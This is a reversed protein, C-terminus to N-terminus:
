ATYTGGAEKVARKFIEKVSDGAKIKVQVPEIYFGQGITMREITFTVTGLDTTTTTEAAYVKDTTIMSITLMIIMLTAILRKTTQNM